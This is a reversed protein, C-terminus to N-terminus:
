SMRWFLRELLDTVQVLQPRSMHTVGMRCGGLSMIMSLLHHRRAPSPARFGPDGNANLTFEDTYLHIAHELLADVSERMGSLEARSWADWLTLQVWVM